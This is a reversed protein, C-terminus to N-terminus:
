DRKFDGTGVEGCGGSASSHSCPGAGPKEEALGVGREVWGLSSHPQPLPPQM